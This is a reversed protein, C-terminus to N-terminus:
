ETVTAYEVPGTIILNENRNELEWRDARIRLLALLSGDYASHWTINGEGDVAIFAIGGDILLAPLGPSREFPYFAGDRYLTAGDGGMTSAFAGSSEAFSFSSDEDQYEVLKQSQAPRNADLAIITTKAAAGGIEIAVAYLTGSGGRYLGLGVAAPYPLPVTEGTRINIKLFPTGGSVSSRGIVINRDDLFAADLSGASSFTFVTRGTETSVVTIGGASDLFLAQKGLVSVETLPLNISLRYFPMGGEGPTQKVVPADQVTQDQWFVFGGSDASGSDSAARRYPGAPYLSLPEGERLATYDRPTMGTFGNGTIFVASEGSVAANRVPVQSGTTLAAATGPELLRYVRGETTGLILAAGQGALISEV